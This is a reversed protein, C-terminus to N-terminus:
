RSWYGRHWGWPTWWGPHWYRMPGPAMPVVYCASVLLGVAMIVWVAPRKLLLM